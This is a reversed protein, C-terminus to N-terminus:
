EHLDIRYSIATNGGTTATVYLECSSDFAIYDFQAISATSGGDGSYAIGVANLGLSVAIASSMDVVRKGDIWVEVRLTDGGAVNTQASFCRIAGRGSVSAVRNRVGASLVFNSYGVGVLGWSSSPAKATFVASGDTRGAFKRLQGSVGQTMGALMGQNM